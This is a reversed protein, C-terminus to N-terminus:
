IGFLQVRVVARQHQVVAIGQQFGPLRMQGAVFQALEALESRRVDSIVIVQGPGLGLRAILHFGANGVSFVIEEGALGLHGNLLEPM